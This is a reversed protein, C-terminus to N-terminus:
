AQAKAAAEDRELQKFYAVAAADGILIVPATEEAVEEKKPPALLVRLRDAMESDTAYRKSNSNQSKM